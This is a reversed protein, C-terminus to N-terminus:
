GNILEFEDLMKKVDNQSNFMLIDIISLNPQFKGDFQKYKIEKTKVFCLKVGRKLFERGDYLTQGGVANYYENAGLVKCINLIKNQGKLSNDKDLSSSRIIETTIDLYKTIELFSKEILDVIAIDGCNIIRDIMPFIDEFYKARRYALEITRLRKEIIEDSLCCDVDKILKNQSVGQIPINFYRPEGDILIRNRNIWGRKIYNVDDYIVYTDVANMLQWYGIYPMFYPQMIGVKKGMKTGKKM